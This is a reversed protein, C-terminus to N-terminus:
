PQLLKKIMEVASKPTYDKRWLGFHHEGNDTSPCAPPICTVDTPFDFATWIIWGALNDSEAQAIVDKLMQSQQAEDIGITSFGTEEVLLPKSTYVRYGMTRLQLAAANSWHHFSLFDVAQETVQTGDLWGATILHNPDIQKVADSTHKLWDLIVKSSFGNRTYDIDGENRLDWAFIAPENKYRQVIYKTEELPLDPYMYLPHMALDPLDNLTVLVVLNREVALKIVSDLRAFGDPKPIVGNGPCQFLADYYLFIRITNFGADKILDLEHAMAPLQAESLFRRWPARMPYYNVGHVKFPKDELTFESADTRIFTHTAQPTYTSAAAQAANVTADDCKALPMPTLLNRKKLAQAAETGTPNVALANQYALVANTINGQAELWAGYNYYAPYLKLTPNEGNCKGPLRQLKELSDIVKIWNNGWSADIDACLIEQGRADYTPLVYDPYPTSPVSQCATLLLLLILSLRRNMLMTDVVTSLENLLVISIVDPLDIGARYLIFRTITLTLPLASIDRISVALLPRRHLAIL